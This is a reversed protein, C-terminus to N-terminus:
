SLANELFEVLLCDSIEPNTISVASLLHADPINNADFCHYGTNICTRILRQVSINGLAVHQNNAWRIM